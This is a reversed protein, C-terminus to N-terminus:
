ALTQDHAVTISKDGAMTLFWWPRMKNSGGLTAPCKGRGALPSLTLSLIGRVFERKAGRFRGREPRRCGRGRLPPSPFPSPATKIADLNLPLPEHM